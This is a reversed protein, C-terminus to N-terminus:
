CTDVSDTFVPNASIGSKWAHYLYKKDPGDCIVPLSIGCNHIIIEDNKPRNAEALKIGKFFMKNSKPLSFEFHQEFIERCGENNNLYYKEELSMITAIRNEIETTTIDDDDIVVSNICRSDLQNRVENRHAEIVRATLNNAILRDRWMEAKLRPILSAIRRFISGSLQWCRTSSRLYMYTNLDMPKCLLICVFRLFNSLDPCEPSEAFVADCNIILREEPDNQNSSITALGCARLRRLLAPDIEEITLDNNVSIGHLQFSQILHGLNFQIQEVNNDSAIMRVTHLKKLNTRSDCVFDDPDGDCKNPPVLLAYQSTERVMYLRYVDKLFDKHKPVPPLVLEIGDSSLIYDYGEGSLLYVPISRPDLGCEACTGDSNHVSCTLFYDLLPNIIDNKFNDSVQIDARMISMMKLLYWKAVEGDITNFPPTLAGAGNRILSIVNPDIPLRDRNCRFDYGSGDDVSITDLAAEANVAPCFFTPRYILTKM